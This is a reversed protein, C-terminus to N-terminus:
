GECFQTPKLVRIDTKHIWASTKDDFRVLYYYEIIREINGTYYKNGDPALVKTGRPLNLQKNPVDLVVHTKSMTKLKDNYYEDDEIELQVENYTDDITKVYSKCYVDGGRYNSDWKGLVRSGVMVCDTPLDCGYIEVRMCSSKFLYGSFRYGIPRFRVRRAIISKKLKHKVVTTADSNGNFVKEKDNERYEIPSSKALSYSITYKTEWQNDRANGQTAIYTIRYPKELDVELYPSKINFRGSCWTRTGHLRGYRADYRNNWRSSARINKNPIKGNEMGLPSGCEPTCDPISDTWKGDVCKIKSSGIMAFNSKCSFSVTQLHTFIDGKREGNTPAGPDPCNTFCKPIDNDWNGDVCNIASPGVMTYGANCQFEQKFQDGKRKGGSLSSPEKCPVSCKPTMQDWRGDSCTIMKRGILYKGKECSFMVQDGHQFSHNYRHGYSPTGPDPCPAVCKPTKNTWKGNICTTLSSGTRKFGTNCRFRVSQGHMFSDGRQLKTGNKPQTPRPCPALCYPWIRDWSGDSQCILSSKGLQTYGKKCEVIIKQGPLFKSQQPIKRGDGPHHFNTCSVELCIPKYGNWTGDRQCTLESKGIRRYNINCTFRIAENPQYISKTSNVVGNTLQGPGICTSNVKHYIWPLFPQLRTYYGFHSGLTCGGWSVLGITVFRYKGNLFFKRVMSGGSDGYCPASHGKVDSACFAVTKNYYFSIARRCVSNTQINFVSYRLFSSVWSYDTMGWGAVMGATGPKALDLDPGPLCVTRVYPGLIVERNLKVLAIDNEYIPDHRYDPHIFIEQFKHEQESSEYSRLEHDGVKIKYKALPKIDKESWVRNTNNKGVYFCHAATLVWQPSVLAGGCLFKWGSVGQKKYIGVQWPWMGRQSIKGGVVLGRIKILREGCHDYQLSFVNLAIKVILIIVLFITRKM